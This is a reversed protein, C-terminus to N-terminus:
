FSKKNLKKILYVQSVSFDNSKKMLLVSQDVALLNVESYRSADINVNVHAGPKQETRDFKVSM